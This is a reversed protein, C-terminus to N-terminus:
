FGWFKGFDGVDKVWLLVILDDLGIMISWSWFLLDGLFLKFLFSFFDDLPLYDNSTSILSLWGICDCLM